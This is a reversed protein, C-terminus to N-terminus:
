SLRAKIDEKIANYWVQGMKDYGAENLHIGDKLDSLTIEANMNVFIVNDYKSAAEEVGRNYADVQANFGDQNQGTNNNNFDADIYPISALYIKGDSPLEFQIKDILTELRAPAEDLAYQSLIDNTGIMLLIINPNNNSMWLDISSTLGNRFTGSINDEASIPAISWGSHGEHDTDYGRGGSLTGVFNVEGLGDAEFLSCLNNRYGGTVTYGNTLSDGLCMLRVISEAEEDKLIEGDPENLSVTISEIAIASWKGLAVILKSTDKSLKIHTTYWKDYECNAEVDVTQNGATISATNGESRNTTGNNTAYPKAYKISLYMGKSIKEPLNLTFISDGGSGLFLYHKTNEFGSGYPYYGSKVSDKNMIVANKYTSSGGTALTMGTKGVKAAEIDITDFPKILSYEDGFDYIMTNIINIDATESISIGNYSATATLKLIDGTVSHSNVTVIGNDVTAKMDPTISWEWSVDEIEIDNEDYLKAEFPPLAKETPTEIVQTQGGSIVAYSPVLNNKELTINLSKSKGDVSFDTQFTKYKGEETVLRYTGSTLVLSINGNDDTTYKKPNYVTGKTGSITVETNPAPNTGDTVNIEVNQGTQIVLRPPHQSNVGAFTTDAAYNSAFGIGLIDNDYNLVTDTLDIDSYNGAPFIGSTNTNVSIIKKPNLSSYALTSYTARNNWDTDIVSMTIDGTRDKGINKTYIQLSASQIKSKDVDRLNFKMVPYGMQKSYNNLYMEADSPESTIQKLLATDEANVTIPEEAETESNFSAIVNYFTLVSWGTAKDTLTPAFRKGYCCDVAVVGALETDVTLVVNNGNLVANTINLNEGKGKNSSKLEKDGGQRVVFQSKLDGLQITRLGNTIGLRKTDNRLYLGEKGVNKFTLTIEKEGTVKATDITPHLYQIGTKKYVTSLATRAWSDGISINSSATNHVTDGIDYGSTGVIYVNDYKEAYQRQVDKLYSFADYYGTKAEDEQNYDNLQTTIIPLNKNEFFERFQSFLEKQLNEYNYAYIENSSDNCGQYWIIGTIDKSPLVNFCEKMANILYGDLADGSKIGKAWQYMSTGGVSTQIIGIPIDTEQTLRRAFSVVPSTRVGKKWFRGEGTPHEMKSWKANEAYMIHMGDVIPDGTNPNFGDTLAGMDTMNSQGAAVWIDGVGFSTIQKAVNGDTKIAANYLGTSLKVTENFKNNSVAATITQVPKGDNDTIEIEINCSDNETSYKGNEYIIANCQPTMGEFSDWVMIRINNEDAFDDKINIVSNKKFDYSKLKKLVENEYSAAILLANDTLSTIETGSASLVGNASISDSGETLGSFVINARGESNKQYIQYNEPCNTMYLGNSYVTKDNIGGIYSGNAFLKIKDCGRVRNFCVTFDNSGKSVTESFLDRKIEDGFKNYQVAEIQVTEATDTNSSIYARFVPSNIRMGLLIDPIETIEKEESDTYPTQSGPQNQHTVKKLIYKGDDANMTEKYTDIENIDASKDQAFASLDLLNTGSFLIAGSLLTSILKKRM